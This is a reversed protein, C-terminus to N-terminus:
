LLEEIPKGVGVISVPRGTADEYHTGLPVGLGQYITALVDLPTVPRDAVEGGRKESAGVVVGDKLGGGGLVVSFCNSWHDRGAHGNIMPTRGFEGASYLIVDDWLGREVLDEVLTGLAQDFPPLHQELGKEIHDHHDWYGTNVTVCTSGAEILRRALLASQGYQHRGYRDRLKEDESGIDFAARVRDGTILELAQAKFASLGAAVGSKDLDSRFTDLKELLDRRSRVADLGLGEPL